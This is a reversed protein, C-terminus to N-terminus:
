LAVGKDRLLAMAIAQMDTLHAKTATLTGMDGYGSLRESPRIGCRWLEDMLMVAVEKTICMTADNIVHPDAPVMELPKAILMGFERHEVLAIDIANRSFSYDARIETRIPAM